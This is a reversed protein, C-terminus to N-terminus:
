LGPIPLPHGLITHVTVDSGPPGEWSCRAPFKQTRPSWGLFKGEGSNMMNMGKKIGLCLTLSLLVHKQTGTTGWHGVVCDPNLVARHFSYTDGLVEWWKEAQHGVM